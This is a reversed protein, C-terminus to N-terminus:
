CRPEVANINNLCSMISIFSKSTAERCSDSSGLQAIHRLGGVLM